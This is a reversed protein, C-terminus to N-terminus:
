ISFDPYTDSDNVPILALYAEMLVHIVWTCVYTSLVRCKGLCTLWEYQRRM